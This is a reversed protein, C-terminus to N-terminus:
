HNAPKRSDPVATRNEMGLRQRCIDEPTDLIPRTPDADRNQARMVCQDWSRIDAMRESVSRPDGPPVPVQRRVTGPVIVEGNDAERAAAPPPPAVTNAAVVNNPVPPAAATTAPPPTPIAAVPLPAVSTTSAAASPPSTEARTESHRVNNPHAARYADQEEQTAWISCAGLMSAAALILILRNAM